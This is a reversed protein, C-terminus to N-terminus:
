YLCFGLVEKMECHVVLVIRLVIGVEKEYAELIPEACCVCNKFPETELQLVRYDSVYGRLMAPVKGLLSENDKGEEDQSTAEFGDKHQTLSAILEVAISSSLGSVGPRVVTCQRDLTREKISDTPATCDNCFYCASPLLKKNYIIVQKTFTFTFDTYSFQEDVM